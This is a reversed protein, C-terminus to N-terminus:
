PLYEFAGIERKAGNKAYGLFDYTPVTTGESGTDICPSGSGLQYKLVGNGTGGVFLPDAIINGHAGAVFGSPTNIRDADDSIPNAGGGIACNDVTATVIEYPPTGDDYLVLQTTLGSGAQNFFLISDKMEFSGKMMTIGGGDYTAINEVITSNYIKLTVPLSVSDDILIGGGHGGSTNDAVICNRMEVMGNASVINLAGGQVTGENGVFACRDFTIPGAVNTALAGGQQATNDEFLVDVFSLKAGTGAYVAGGAQLTSNGRFVTHTVTLDLKNGLAILAGGSVNNDNDEFRCDTVTVKQNNIAAGVWFAGTPANRVTFGGIYLGGNDVDVEFGSHTAGTLDIITTEPGKIGYISILKGGPNLDENNTGTYIGPHVTVVDYNGAANVASKIDAYTKGDGVELINGSYVAFTANKKVTHGASDTITIPIVYIGNALTSVNIDRWWFWENAGTSYTINQFTERPMGGLEQYDMATTMGDMTTGTIVNEDTAFVSMRITGDSNKAPNKDFTIDTIVPPTNASSGTVPLSNTGYEVTGNDRRIWQGTFQGDTCTSTETPAYRLTVTHFNGPTVTVQTAPTVAGGVITVKGSCDMPLTTENIILDVLTATNIMTVARELYSNYGVLGFDVGSEPALAMYGNTDVTLINSLPGATGSRYPRMAVNWSGDYWNMPVDITRTTGPTCTVIDDILTIASDFEETTTIPNRSRKFLYNTVEPGTCTWTFGINHAAPDATTRQAALDTVTGISMADWGATALYRCRGGVVWGNDDTEGFYLSDVGGKTFVSLEETMGDSNNDALLYDYLFIQGYYAAFTTQGTIMGGTADYDIYALAGYSAGNEGIPYATAMVPLFLDDFFAFLTEPEAGGELPTYDAFFGVLRGSGNNILQATFEGATIAVCSTEDFKCDGSCGDSSQANGDDCAEYGADTTGDGCQPGMADCDANCHGYTGNLSAGDDCFEPGTKIGDGCVHASQCLSFDWQCTGQNCTATGGSYQKDIKACDFSMTGGIDCQEGGNIIGDGCSQGGCVRYFIYGLQLDQGINQVAAATLPIYQGNTTASLDGGDTATTNEAETVTLSGSTAVYKICPIAGETEYGFLKVSDETLGIEMTLPLGLTNNQTPDDDPFLLTLASPIEPNMGSADYYNEQVILSPDTPGDASRTVVAQHLSNIPPIPLEDEWTGSFVGGSLIGEPHDELYDQDGLKSSDFIFTTEFFIQVEVQECVSTDWGTCDSKCGVITTAAGLALDACTTTETPECVEDTSCGDATTEVMGNGCTCANKLTCSGTLWGDCFDNCQATGGSYLDDDVEVCPRTQTKECTEDKSCGDAITDVVSNGCTCDSKPTCSDTVWGTCTGNCQATGGSYLNQNVEICPKSQTKECTENADVTGNGCVPKIQCDGTDWKCTDPNCIATGQQKPDLEVCDIDMDGECEETGDVTGDGCGVSVCTSLNWQCNEGCSAEGGKYQEPDIDTCAKKDTLSIDCQESTQVTGDGCTKAICGSRDWMCNDTCTADGGSYQTEDLQSCPLSTTGSSGDCEETGDIGGNGCTVANDVDPMEDKDGMDTDAGAVPPDKKVEELLDNETFFECSAVMAVLATLFAIRILTNM